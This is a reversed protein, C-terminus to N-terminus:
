GCRAHAASIGIVVQFFIHHPKGKGLTFSKWKFHMTTPWLELTAKSFCGKSVFWNQGGGVDLKPHFKECKVLCFTNTVLRNHSKECHSGKNGTIFHQLLNEAM